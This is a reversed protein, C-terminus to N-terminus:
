FAHIIIDFLIIVDVFKKFFNIIIQFLNNPFRLHHLYVPDFRQGEAQM